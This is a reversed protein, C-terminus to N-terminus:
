CGQLVGKYKLVLMGGPLFEQLGVQCCFLQLPLGSLPHQLFKVDESNQGLRLWCSLVGLSGSRVGLWGVMDLDIEISLAVRLKGEKANGHCIQLLPQLVCGLLFHVVKQSLDIVPVKFVYPIM